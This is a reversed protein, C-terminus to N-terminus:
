TLEGKQGLIWGDDLFFDFTRFTRTNSQLYDYHFYKVM